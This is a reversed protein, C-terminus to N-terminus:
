VNLTVNVLRNTERSFVTTGYLTHLMYNMEPRKPEPHVAMTPEIQMALAPAGISGALLSGTETGFINTAATFTESNQQRGYATVIADNTAWAGLTVQANQYDRRADGAPEIYDDATPPTTGNIATLLIAKADAINAGINIEGANAASADTVWTWTVGAITLTDGNTPQTDMTLTQSTPLNNSNYVRLGAQSNGVFGNKLASDALNFGNAVEVQALLAARDPDLVIFMPRDTARKRQLTAVITTLTSFMNAATLTGGVVTTGANTVGTNLVNQDVENAIVYASNDALRAEIGKDMAQRTSNPDLTFTAAKSQNISLTSSTATNNDITLDTGPTYTQVRMQTTTPWDITAGDVMQARFDTKAIAAAVLRNELYDQVKPLFNTPALAGWSNAM